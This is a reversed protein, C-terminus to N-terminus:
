RYTCLIVNAAAPSHGAAQKKANSRFIMYSIEM